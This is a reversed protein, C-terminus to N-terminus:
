KMSQCHHPIVRWFFVTYGEEEEGCVRQDTHEESYIWDPLLSSKSSEATDTWTEGDSSGENWSCHLATSCTISKQLGETGQCTDNGLKLLVFVPCVFTRAQKHDRLLGCATGSIFVLSKRVAIKAFPLEGLINPNLGWYYNYFCTLYWVEWSSVM